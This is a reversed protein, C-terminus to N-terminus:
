LESRIQQLGEVVVSGIVSHVTRHHSRTQEFAEMVDDEKRGLVKCVAKLQPFVTPIMQPKLGTISEHVTAGLEKWTDLNVELDDVLVMDGGSIKKLVCFADQKGKIKTPCDYDRVMRYRVVPDMVAATLNHVRFLRNLAKEM